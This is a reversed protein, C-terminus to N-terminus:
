SSKMLTEELVLLEEASLETSTIENCPKDVDPSKKTVTLRGDKVHLHALVTRMLADKGSSLITTPDQDDSLLALIDVLYKVGNIAVEQQHAIVATAGSTEIMRAPAAGVESEISKSVKRSSLSSFWSTTPLVSSSRHRSPRTPISHIMEVIKTTAGSSTANDLIANKRGSQKADSSLTVKSAVSNAFIGDFADIDITSQDPTEGRSKCREIWQLVCSQMVATNLLRLYTESPMSIAFHFSPVRQFSTANLLHLDYRRVIINDKCISCWVRSATRHRRIQKRHPKRDTYRLFSSRYIGIINSAATLARQQIEIFDYGLFAPRFLDHKRLMLHRKKRKEKQEGGSCHIPQSKISHLFSPEQKLQEYRDIKLPRMDKSYNVSNEKRIRSVILFGVQDRPLMDDCAPCCKLQSTLGLAKNSRIREETQTSNHHRDHASVSLKHNKAFNKRQSEFSITTSWLLYIRDDAGIQSSVMWTDNTVDSQYLEVHIKEIRQRLGKDTVDGLVYIFWLAYNSSWFTRAHIENEDAEFTITRRSISVKGDTILNPNVCKRILCNEQTFVSQITHNYGSKTPIFRQLVSLAPKDRHLFLVTLGAKDLHEVILQLEGTTSSRETYAFTALVLDSTDDRKTGRTYLKPTLFEQLVLGPLLNKKSKCLIKGKEQKSTFLWKVPKQHKFVVTDALVASFKRCTDEAVTGDENDGDQQAAGVVEDPKVWLYGYLHLLQEGVTHECAVGECGAGKRRMAVTTM